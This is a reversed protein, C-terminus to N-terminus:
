CPTSSLWGAWWGVHRPGQYIMVRAVASPSPGVGAGCGGDTAGGDDDDAQKSSPCEQAQSRTGLAAAASPM